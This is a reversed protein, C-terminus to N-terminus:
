VHARGIKIVEQVEEQHGWVGMEGGGWAHGRQTGGWETLHSSPGEFKRWTGGAGGQAGGSGEQVGEQHGWVGWKGGLGRQTGGWGTLHTSRGRFRRWTGGVGGMPVGLGTRIAEQVREQYGWVRGSRKRFGRRTGGSGGAEGEFGEPHGGM